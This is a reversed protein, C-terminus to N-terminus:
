LYIDKTQTTDCTGVLLRVKLKRWKACVCLWMCINGDNPWKTRGRNKTEISRKQFPM